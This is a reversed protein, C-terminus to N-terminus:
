IREWLANALPARSKIASQTHLLIRLKANQQMAVIFPDPIPGIQGEPLILAYVDVILLNEAAILPDNSSLPLIGSVSYKGM